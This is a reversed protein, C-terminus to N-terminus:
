SPNLSLSVIQYWTVLLVIALRTERRGWDRNVEGLLDWFRRDTERQM